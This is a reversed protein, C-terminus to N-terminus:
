DHAPEAAPEDLQEGALVKNARRLRESLAQHSIDLEEALEELSIERPVDYYGHRYAETIAEEQPDTLAGTVALDTDRGAEVMRKIEIRVGRSELQDVASSLSDRDPFLLRLTWRGASGQADLITGDHDFIVRCRDTVVDTYEIRYPWERDDPNELLRTCEAVSPDAELTDELPERDVGGIWVLPMTQLPGEAVVSKVRLEVDTLTRFTEPLAFDDASLSVEAVTTVLM